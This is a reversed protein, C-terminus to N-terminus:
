DISPQHSVRVIGGWKCGPDQLALVLSTGGGNDIMGWFLLKLGDELKDGDVEGVRLWVCLSFFFFM